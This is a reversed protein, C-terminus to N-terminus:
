KRPYEAVAPLDVEFEQAAKAARNAADVWDNAIELDLPAQSDLFGAYYRAAHGVSATYRALTRAKKEWIRETAKRAATEPKITKPIM